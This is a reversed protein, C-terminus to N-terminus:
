NEEAQGIAVMYVTSHSLGDLELIADIQRDYFGGVLMCDLGLGMTVLNINQAMHGAELLTFRYGREGYKYTSREFMATIFIMLAAGDAIHKHPLAERIRATEDGERLLRLHTKETNFHYLGGPLGAIHTSHLFIELPYLAGASPVTRFPRPFGTGQNDRTIGYAYHLITALKELTITCPSLGRVTMREALVQMLPTELPTLQTPLEILPYGTFPLSQWLENMWQLVEQQSPFQTYPSLKSNEHFLEWLCEKTNEDLNIQDFIKENMM